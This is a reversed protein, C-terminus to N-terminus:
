AYCNEEREIRCASCECLGNFISERGTDICVMIDRGNRKVHGVNGIHADGFDFGLDDLDNVLQYIEERYYEERDECRDCRCGGEHGRPTILKARETVYGWRSLEGNSMRVRGVESHVKPALDHQSLTVQTKHAYEADSKNIFTKFGRRRGSLSYFSSRSGEDVFKEITYM